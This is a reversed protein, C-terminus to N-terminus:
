TLADIRNRARIMEQDTSLLCITQLDANVNTAVTCLKLNYQVYNLGKGTWNLDRSGPCSPQM